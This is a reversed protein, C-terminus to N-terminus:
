QKPDLKKVRIKDYIRYTLICFHHFYLALIYTLKLNKSKYYEKYEKIENKLKKKELTKIGELLYTRYLDLLTYALKNKAYNSYTKGKSLRDIERAVLVIQEHLFLSSVTHTASSENAVYNYYSKDLYVSRDAKEFLLYNFLIDENYKITKDFEVDKFLEKSYLKNWIGGAFMKGQILYALAEDHSQLVIKGTDGVPVVRGDPYINRYSCHAIKVNYEEILNILESYMYSDIYDDADVFTIYDGSAMNLAINRANSVGGNKIEKIIIRSDKKSLKDLVKSTSDTSGDNIVIIELCSYTQCIISKICKEVTAEGNYVPIIVSIKKMYIKVSLRQSIEM